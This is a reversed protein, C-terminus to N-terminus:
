KNTQKIIQRYKNTNTQIFTLPLRLMRPKEFNKVRVTWCGRKSIRLRSAAITGVVLGHDQASSRGQYRMSERCGVHLRVTWPKRQRWRQRSCIGESRRCQGANTNRGKADSDGGGGEEGLGQGSRDADSVGPHQEPSDPGERPPPPPAASQMGM